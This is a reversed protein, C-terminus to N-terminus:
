RSFLMALKAKLFRALLAPPYGPYVPLQRPNVLPGAAFKTSILMEPAPPNERVRASYIDAWFKGDDFDMVLVSNCCGAVHRNTASGDRLKQKKLLAEGRVCRVRDGRFVVLSTGGDAQRFAPAGPLGELARAAAQCDDCYCVAAVIPRGSAQIEVQGCACSATLM